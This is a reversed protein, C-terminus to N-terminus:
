EACYDFCYEVSATKPKIGERKNELQDIKYIEDYILYGFNLTRLNNIEKKIEQIESQNKAETSLIKDLTKRVDVEKVGKSFRRFFSFIIFVFISLVLTWVSIAILIILEFNFM